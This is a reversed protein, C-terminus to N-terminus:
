APRVEVLAAIAGAEDGHFPSRVIVAFADPLTATRRELCSLERDPRLRGTPAQGAAAGETGPCPREHADEIEVAVEWAGPAERHVHVAFREHLPECSTRADADRVSEFTATVGVPLAGQLDAFRTVRGSAAALADAFGRPDPVPGARGQAALTGAALLPRDEGPDITLRTQSALSGLLADSLRELAFFAVRVELAAAAGSATASAVDA